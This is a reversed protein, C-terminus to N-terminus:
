PWRGPSRWGSSSGAPSSPRTPARAQRGPRGAGAAGRGGCDRGEQQGRPGQGPGRRREGARDHAPVPQVAPLGHRDRAAPHRDGQRDAPAAPRRARRLGDPRRRGLDPWRRHDGAPQHLAPLDDQGVRVPRAPLRGRRRSVDLDIGKLVEVKHFSKTVNLARVLRAIRAGRATPPADASRGARAGFGKGYRRELYSSSCASCARRHDPLLADGRPLAPFLKFTSAGIAGTQYILEAIVPLASLLSTDKVM